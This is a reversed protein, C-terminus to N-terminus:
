KIGDICCPYGNKNNKGVRSLASNDSPSLLDKINSWSNNSRNFDQHNAHLPIQPPYLGTMYFHCINHLKYEISEICVIVYGDKDFRGLSPSILDDSVKKHLTGLECDYFYNDRLFKQTFNLM